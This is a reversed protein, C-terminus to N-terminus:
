GEEEEDDGVEEVEPHQTEPQETEIMPIKWEADWDEMIHGMEEETVRYRMTLWEQTPDRKVQIYMHHHGEKFCVVEKYAEVVQPLICPTDQICQRIVEKYIYFTINNDLQREKHVTHWLNAYRV